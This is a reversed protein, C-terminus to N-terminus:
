AGGYVLSEALLETLVPVADHATRAQAATLEGIEATLTMGGRPVALVTLGASAASRIGNPSDEVALCDAPALGIGAAARLYPEPDPKGRAVDEGCVVVSMRPSLGLSDLAAHVYRRPSASALGVAGHREAERVLDLAGPLPAVHGAACLDAMAAACTEVMEARDVDGGCLGALFAVWGGNGHLTASDQATWRHGHRAAYDACVREWAHGSDVLTDDLDFITARPM